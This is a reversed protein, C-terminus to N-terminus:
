ISVCSHVNGHFRCNRDSKWGATFQWKWVVVGHRSNISAVTYHIECFSSQNMCYSQSSLSCRTASGVTRHHREPRVALRTRKHPLVIHRAINRYSKVILVALNASTAFQFNCIVTCQTYGGKLTIFLYFMRGCMKPGALDIVPSYVAQGNLTIFYDSTIEVTHKLIYSICLHM